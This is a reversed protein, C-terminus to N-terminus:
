AYRKFHPLFFGAKTMLKCCYFWGYFHYIYVSMYSHHWTLKNGVIRVFIWYYILMIYIHNKKHPEELRHSLSISTHLFLIFLRFCIKCVTNLYDFKDVKTLTYSTLHYITHIHSMYRDHKIRKHRVAPCDWINNPLCFFFNRFYIANYTGLRTFQHTRDQSRHFYFQSISHVALSTMHEIASIM